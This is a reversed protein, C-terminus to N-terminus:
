TAATRLRRRLAGGVAAFANAIGGTQETATGIRAKTLEYALYVAAVLAFIGFMAAAVYLGMHTEDKLPRWLGLWSSHLNADYKDALAAAQERRLALLEDSKGQRAKEVRIQDEAIKIKNQIGTIDIQRIRDGVITNYYKLANIAGEVRQKEATQQQEAGGVGRVIQETLEKIRPLTTNVTTTSQRETDMYSKAERESWFIRRMNADYNAAAQETTM